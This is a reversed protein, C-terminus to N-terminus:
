VSIVFSRLGLALVWAYDTLSNNEEARTGLAIGLSRQGAVDLSEADAVM